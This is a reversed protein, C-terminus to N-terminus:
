EHKILQQVLQMINIDISAMIAMEVDVRNQKYLHVVSNYM